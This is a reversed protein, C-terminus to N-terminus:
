SNTGGSVVGGAMEMPRGSFISGKVLSIGKVTESCASRTQRSLTPFMTCGVELLVSSVQVEGIVQVPIGSPCTETTISAVSGLPLLDDWPRPQVTSLVGGSTRISDAGSVTEPGPATKRNEEESDAM